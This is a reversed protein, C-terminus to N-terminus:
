RDDAKRLLHVLGTTWTTTPVQSPDASVATPDIWTEPRQGKGYQRICIIFYSVMSVGVRFLALHRPRKKFVKSEVFIALRLIPKMVTLWAGATASMWLAKRLRNSSPSTTFLDQLLPVFSRIACSVFMTSLLTPTGLVADYVTKGAQPVLGAVAILADKPMQKSSDHTGPNASFRRPPSPSSPQHHGRRFKLSQVCPLSAQLLLICAVVTARVVVSRYSSLM